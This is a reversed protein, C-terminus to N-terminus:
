LKPGFSPVCFPCHRRAEQGGSSGEMVPFRSKQRTLGAGPFIQILTWIRLRRMIFPQRAGAAHYHDGWEPHRDM